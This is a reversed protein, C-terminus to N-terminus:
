PQRTEAQTLQHIRQHSLGLLRAADRASMKLHGGRLVRVARRAAAAARRDEQEARRRLTAYARVARKAANPLRVDDAITAKRADDVFLELAERIRRRAEDVTRGQTHCGRVGRVSAVWWGSEDREYAVRYTKVVEEVM